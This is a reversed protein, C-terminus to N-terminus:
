FTGNPAQCVTNKLKKLSYTNQPGKYFKAQFPVNNFMDSTKFVLVEINGSNDDKLSSFLTTMKSKNNTDSEVVKDIEGDISRTDTIGKFPSWTFALNFDVGIGAKQPNRDCTLGVVNVSHVDVSAHAISTTATIIILNLIMSMTKM